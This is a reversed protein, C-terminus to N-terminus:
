RRAFARPIGAAHLLRNILGGIERYEWDRAVVSIQLPDARVSAPMPNPGDRFSSDYISIRDDGRIAWRGNPLGRTQEQPYNIASVRGQRDRRLNWGEADFGQANLSPLSSLSGDPMLGSIVPDRVVGNPQQVYQFRVYAYVDPSDVLMQMFARIARSSVNPHQTPFSFYLFARQRSGTTEWGPCSNTSLLGFDHLDLLYRYDFRTTEEEVYGGYSACVPLRGELYRPNLETINYWNPARQWLDRVENHVQNWNANNPIWRDEIDNALLAIQENM